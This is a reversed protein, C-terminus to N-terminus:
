RIPPYSRDFATEIWMDCDRAAARRQAVMESRDFVAVLQGDDVLL